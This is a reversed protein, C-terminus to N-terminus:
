WLSVPSVRIRSGSGGSVRRIQSSYWSSGRVRKLVRTVETLRTWPVPFCRESGLASSLVRELHSTLSPASPANSATTTVTPVHPAGFRMSMGPSGRTSSSESSPPQRSAFCLPPRPPSTNSPSTSWELSSSLASRSPLVTSTTPLPALPTSATSVASAFPASCQTM